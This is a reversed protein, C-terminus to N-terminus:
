KYKGKLKPLKLKYNPICEQIKKEENEEWNERGDWASFATPTNSFSIGGLVHSPFFDGSSVLGGGVTGRYWIISICTFEGACDRHLIISFM